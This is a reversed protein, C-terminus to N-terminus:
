GDQRILLLYAIYLHILFKILKEIFFISIELELRKGELFLFIFYLEAAVFIIGMRM